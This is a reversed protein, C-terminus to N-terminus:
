GASQRASYQRSREVASPALATAREHAAARPMSMRTLTIPPRQAGWRRIRRAPSVSHDLLQVLFRIRRNTEIAGQQRDIIACPDPPRM